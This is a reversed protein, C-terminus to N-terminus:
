RKATSKPKPKKQVVRDKSPALIERGGDKQNPIKPPKYVQMLEKPISKMKNTM